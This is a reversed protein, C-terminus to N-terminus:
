SGAIEIASSSSDPNKKSRWSVSLQPLGHRIPYNEFVIYRLGRFAPTVSAGKDAVILPDPEQSESGPYIRVTSLSALLAAAVEPDTWSDPIVAGDQAPDFILDSGDWIGIPAGGEFPDFPQCLAAAFTMTTIGAPPEEGIQQVPGIWIVKLPLRCLGITRPITQGVTDVTFTLHPPDPAPKTQLLERPLLGIPNYYTFYPNFTPGGYYGGGYKGSVIDAALDDDAM